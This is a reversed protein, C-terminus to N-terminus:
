RMMWGLVLSSGGSAELKWKLSMSPPKSNPIESTRTLKLNKNLPSVPHFLHNSPRKKPSNSHKSTRLSPSSNLVPGIRHTVNTTRKILKSARNPHKNKLKLALKENKNRNIFRKSHNRNYLKTSHSQPKIM